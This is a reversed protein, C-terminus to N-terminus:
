YFEFERDIDEPMSQTIEKDDHQLEVDPTPTSLDSVAGNVDDEGSVVDYKEETM